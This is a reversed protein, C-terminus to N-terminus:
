TLLLYIVLYLGGLDALVLAVMLWRFVTWGPSAPRGSSREAGKGFWAWHWTGALGFFSFLLVFFLIIQLMIM